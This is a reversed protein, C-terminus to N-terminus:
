GHCGCGGSNTSASSFTAAGHQYFKCWYKCAQEFHGAEICADIAKKRLLGNVFNMPIQTCDQELEGISPLLGNYLRCPNYVAFTFSSPTERCSHNNIYEDNYNMSVVIIFLDSLIDPYYCSQNLVQDMIALDNDTITMNYEQIYEEEGEFTKIYIPNGDIFSKNNYIYISKFGINESYQLEPIDTLEISIHLTSDNNDIYINKTIEM